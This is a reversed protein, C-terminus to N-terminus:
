PGADLDPPSYVCTDPAPAGSVLDVSQVCGLHLIGIEVGCTGDPRCCGPMDVIPAFQGPCTTDPVGIQDRPLCGDPIGRTHNSGSTWGVANASNVGCAGDPLCCGVFTIGEAVVNECSGCPGDTFTPAAGGAGVAGGSSYSSLAGSDAGGAAANSPGGDAGGAGANAPGGDGDLNQSQKVEEGGLSHATGGCAVFGVVSLLGIVTGSRKRM